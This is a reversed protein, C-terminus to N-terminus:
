KREQFSAGDSEMEKESGSDFEECVEGMEEEDTEVNFNLNSLNTKMARDREEQDFKDFYMEIDYRCDEGGEEYEEHDIAFLNDGEREVTFVRGGYQYRNSEVKNIKPGVRDGYQHMQGDIAREEEESIQVQEVDEEEFEQPRNADYFGQSGFTQKKTFQDRPESKAM